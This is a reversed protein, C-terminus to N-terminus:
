FCIFDGFPIVNVFPDGMRPCLLKIISAGRTGGRPRQDGEGGRSVVFSTKMIKIFFTIKVKERICM